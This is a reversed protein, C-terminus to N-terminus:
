IDSYCSRLVAKAGRCFEASGPPMGAGEYFLDDLNAVDIFVLVDECGGTTTVVHTPPIGTCVYPLEVHIRLVGRIDNGPLGRYAAMARNASKATSNPGQVFSCRIDSSAVNDEHDKWGLERVSCKTALAWMHNVDGIYGTSDQRALNSQVLMKGRLECFEFHQLKGAKKKKKRQEKGYTVLAGSLFAADGDTQLGSPTRRAFGLQVSTGIEGIDLKAGGRAWGPLTNKMGKLFPLDAIEWGDFLQSPVTPAAVALPHVPPHAPARAKLAHRVIPELANGKASGSTGVFELLRALLDISQQMPSRELPAGLIQLARQGAELALPENLEISAKGGSGEVHRVSCLLAVFADAERAELWAVPERARLHRAVFLVRQLVGVVYRGRDSQRWTGEGGALRALEGGISETASSVATEIASLLVAAKGEPTASATKEHRLLASVVSTAARFRGRLQLMASRVAATDCGGMDLVESLLAFPDTCEPFNVVISTEYGQKAVASVAPDAAAIALSTGTVVTKIDMAGLASCMLALFGRTESPRWTRKEADWSQFAESRSRPVVRGALLMTAARQAEDIAVVVEAGGAALEVASRAAPLALRLAPADCLTEALKAEIAGLVARGGGLQEELFGQPSVAGCNRQLLAYLLLRALVMRGVYAHASRALDAQLDRARAHAVEPADSTDCTYVRSLSSYADDAFSCMRHWLGEDGFDIYVVIFNQQALQLVTTTKGCGSKGVLAVLQRPSTKLLTVLTCGEATTPDPTDALKGLRCLEVELPQQAAPLPRKFFPGLRARQAEELEQRSHRRPRYLGVEGDCATRLLSQVVAPIGGPRPLQPGLSLADSAVVITFSRPRGLSRRRRLAEYFDDELAVIRSLRLWATSLVPEAYRHLFAQGLTRPDDPLVLSVLRHLLLPVGLRAMAERYLQSPEAWVGKGLGVAESEGEGERKVLVLAAASAARTQRLRKSAPEGPALQREQPAAAATHFERAQLYASPQAPSDGLTTQAM